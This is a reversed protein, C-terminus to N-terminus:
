ARVQQVRYGTYDCAVLRANTGASKYVLGGPSVTFDAAPLDTSNSGAFTYSASDTSYLYDARTGGANVFTALCLFAGDKPVEAVAVRTVSGNKAATRCWEAASGNWRREWGVLNSLTSSNCVFGELNSYTDTAGTEAGTIAVRSTALACGMGLRFGTGNGAGMIGARGTTTTGTSYTGVGFARETTNIGYASTAFAAGTGSTDGGFFGSARFSDQIDWFATLGMGMGRTPWSLVRWRATTVDYLLTITDGPMLFAPFGDPLMLRNAASSATNENELWLLYDTSANVITLVRATSPAAIGTIGTSGAGSWRAITTASSVSLDNQKTTFTFAEVSESLNRKLALSVQMDADDSKLALAAQLDAQNAIDGEVGGWVGPTRPRPGELVALDYFWDRRAM